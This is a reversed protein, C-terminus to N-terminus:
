SKDMADTETEAGTGARVERSSLHSRSSWASVLGGRRSNCKTLTNIVVISFFFLIGEESGVFGLRM